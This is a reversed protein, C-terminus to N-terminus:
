QKELLISQISSNIFEKKVNMDIGFLNSLRERVQKKTIHMLDETEIISKIEEFIREDSPFPSPEMMVSFSQQSQPLNDENFTGLLHAASGQDFSMTTPPRNLMDSTDMRSSSYSTRDGHLQPASKNYNTPLETMSPYFPQGVLGPHTMTSTPRMMQPYPIMNPPLSLMSINPYGATPTKGGGYESGAVFSNSGELNNYMFSQHLNMSQSADPYYGYDLGGHMSTSHRLYPDPYPSALVNVRYTGGSLGTVKSDASSRDVLEQEYVSWKKMPIMKEDFEEEDTVIIKRQKEGVVVRTNGWSFDDFHWFSYIPLFFSYIPMAFLYFFMWGIHQWQRKLIFLVVQLAYIGGLISIALKPFPGSRSAMVYVLYVLYAFSVPLTLTGILDILVVFRMSFCCFGCLDPLLVVELLNHITSNIWRRRQSLLVRWKDPAVTRCTAHPTFKMKYQPFHKMMLTTLYRDEGLSLLNKKHLTDVRNESYDRIVKPSIILPENKVPTRVRYMCFCGPLCTVSGFLSEFAKALYHSIYYEYVQIMTTWSQNENSLATEGCIGMIRGDHLMSSILYSLSHPMVETDSDVMLIYEYFSPNVGIINNIQYYIELELPTMEGDFHVRNLFNMCIMQSDRKGRNGPKARESAKGVKVVVIYPVIHGECEYLGSYVKGYNLQKSGEGVSKFMRPEPENAMNYGLVDLVIRPTPRDNGSGMIMGDAIIFLLKRKDDYNMVALSNITKRISEEGETYCPVQCIVFKDHDEPVPTSGFQLAALFKVLIVACMLMACALLMYNTFMCRATDRPDVHGIFFYNDLCNMNQQQQELSMRDKYMEWKSTADTGSFHTFLDKVVDSLFNYENDAAGYYQVTTLYDQIDYVKDHIVLVARGWGNADAELDSLRHVLTGKKFDKIAPLFRDWYWHSDKMDSLTDLQLQDGSYHIFSAQPNASTNAMMRINPNTVLGACAVTLPPPISSSMDYGALDGMMSQDAILGAAGHSMKAFKTMDYVVGRISMYNDNPLGHARVNAISYMTQTGPCVIEGLGVIVFLIIASMFAIIACLAVKERWAMQIDPRDMKGFWRLFPSPIWFTLLWVFIVWWRRVKTISVNEIHEVQPGPTEEVMKSMDMNPGLGNAHNWELEEEWQSENTGHINESYGQSSGEIGCENAVGNYVNMSDNNLSYQAIPSETGAENEAPLTRNVGGKRIEREQKELARLTDELVKWLDYKLWVMNRGIALESADWDMIGCIHEMKEENLTEMDEISLGTDPLIREYRVMFEEFTYRYAYDVQYRVCLEPISFARIQCKVQNHDFETSSQVDNPRIHIINYITTGSISSTIDCLTTYLQDIVTNQQITKPATDQKKESTSCENKNSESALTEASDSRPSRKNISPKRLPKSSVQAKIIARDDNPHSKITMASNKFLNSVFNNSSGDKFMSVFDPSVDDLNDQLFSEVNYDATGCFHSIGFAFTQHNRSLSPHTSFQRQLAALFNADTAETAGAQLKTTDRNLLGSIGNSCTFRQQSKQRHKIMDRKLEQKDKGLLLELCTFSGFNLTISPLTIGDSIMLKNSESDRDFAENVFFCNLYENAINTCFQEFGNSAHNQFGFQDLIGIINVSDDSGAYCIRQNISEVIWLFLVNYLTRALSDRQDAAAEPNLFVTCLERGIMKLKYTLCTELKSPSVGLMMSVTELVDNNKVVCAEQATTLSNSNETFQLNGIHLIAALLQFIQTVVKVKFGCIKFAKKLNNFQIEDHWHPLSLCNSQNLYNFHEPKYNIHLANKEEITTGALLSYFVHFSRENSPVNTVRTKDFQYTLMRSGLIRGRKSFQIEQFISYKSASINQATSAQGFAELIIHAHQIKLGLKHEANNHTSLYLLESLLHSRTTTKGSGTIGSLIVSQDEGTRRMCFYMKTAMEYIHPQLPKKDHIDKYGVDAYLKLTADNLLELPQFPNVIILNSYGLQTYPINLKYRAELLSCISDETPPRERGNYLTVLNECENQM